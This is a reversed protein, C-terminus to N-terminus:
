IDFSQDIRISFVLLYLLLLVTCSKFVKSKCQLTRLLVSPRCCAKNSFCTNCYLPLVSMLMPSSLAPKSNLVASRESLQRPEYWVIEREFETCFYLSM